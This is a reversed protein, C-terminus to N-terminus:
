PWHIHTVGARLGVPGFNAIPFSGTDYAMRDPAIKPGPSRLRDRINRNADLKPGAPGFNAVPFTGAPGAYNPGM